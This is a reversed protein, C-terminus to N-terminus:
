NQVNRYLLHFHFYMYTNIVHHYRFFRQKQKFLSVMTGLIKSALNGFKHYGEVRTKKKKNKKGLAGLRVNNQNPGM